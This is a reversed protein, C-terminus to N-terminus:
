LYIFLSHIFSDIFLCVMFVWIFSYIFSHVFCVSVSSLVFSLIFALFLPHIPQYVFLYIFMSSVANRCSFPLFKLFVVFSFNSIDIASISDLNLSVFCLMLCIYLSFIDVHFWTPWFNKSSESDVAPTKVIHSAM